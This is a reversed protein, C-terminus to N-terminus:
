KQLLPKHETFYRLRLVSEASPFEKQLWLTAAILM